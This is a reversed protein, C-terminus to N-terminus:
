TYCLENGIMVLSVDRQFCNHMVRAVMYNADAILVSICSHTLPLHCVGKFTETQRIM